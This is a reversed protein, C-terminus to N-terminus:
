FALAQCDVSFKDLSEERVQMGLGPARLAGAVGGLGFRLAPETLDERLLLRSYSGEAHLTDDLCMLLRRAAASLIGTEGVQCGLQFRLGHARAMEALRLTNLLGGCKSLRLNFIQCARNQILREGDELTTLSEDVCVPIPSRRAVYSLGDIERPATPEEVSSVEFERMQHIRKLALEPTWVGNADIRLDVNNGVARRVVAVREVDDDDAGVKVKVARFGFVRAAVALYRLKKLSVSPLVASYRVQERRAPGILAHVDTQFHLAAADIVALEFVCRVAGSLPCHELFDKVDELSSFSRGLLAITIYGALTGKVTDVTEGTVYERPVCEGYGAIGDELKLKLVVNETFSRAASAHKFEGRFPLRVQHIEAAIIKM